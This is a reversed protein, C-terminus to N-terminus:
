MIDCYMVNIRLVASYSVELLMICFVNVCLRLGPDRSHIIFHTNLGDVSFM